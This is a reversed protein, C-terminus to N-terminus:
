WMLRHCTSRASCTLLTLHFNINIDARVRKSVLTLIETLMSLCKELVQKNKGSTSYQLFM